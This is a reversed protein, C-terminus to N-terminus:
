LPSKRCPYLPLPMFTHVWRRRGTSCLSLIHPAIGENGVRRWPTWHSFNIKRSGVAAYTTSPVEGRIAVLKNHKLNFFETVVNSNVHSTSLKFQTYYAVSKTVLPHVSHIRHLSLPLWAISCAFRSPLYTRKPTCLNCLTVINYKGRYVEWPICSTCKSLAFLM